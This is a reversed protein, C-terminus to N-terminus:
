PGLARAYEEVRRADTAEPALTLYRRFAAAARAADGQQYRLFGLERFPDPFGPGLEAAREYCDFAKGEEAVQEERSVARQARLRHLTGYDLHAVPDRPTAALVRDLAVRALEFRGARVDLDANDRVVPRMRREFEERGAVPDRAATVLAGRSAVLQRTSAIRERLRAHNGLFFIELTGRDTMEDDLREFAAPAEGPDYGARALMRLGEADAEREADRGYGGIAAVATLRLRSGFIARAGSGLMAAPAILRPPVADPALRRADGRIVHSMERALITALEGESALRSLLGTHVFVRGDPLAFAALTPDRLVTVTFPPAGAPRAAPPLLRDAIGALYEALVPDDYTKARRLLAAEEREAEAMVARDEAEPSLAQGGPGVRVVPRMACASALLSVAILPLALRSAALTCPAKSAGM